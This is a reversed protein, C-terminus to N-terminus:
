TSAIAEAALLRDFPDRHEVEFQGALIAAGATLALLDAQLKALTSDVRDLLPGPHALKGLRVKTAIELLSATSVVLQRGPAEVAQRAKRSLKQPETLMWLLVHTDLLLSLEGM